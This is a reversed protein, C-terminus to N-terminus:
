TREAEHIVFDADTSLGDVEEPDFCENFDSCEECSSASCLLFGEAECLRRYFYKKWRMKRINGAALVPFYEIVLRRLEAQHLLGLDRWLHDERLGRRAIIKAFRVGELDGPRVHALLMDRLLEEEADPASATAEEEALAHILGAPLCRTRIDRLEALSLGTAETATTMGKEIEELARSFVCHLVYDGFSLKLDRQCPRGDPLAQYSNSDEGAISIQRASGAAPVAVTSVQIQLMNSMHQRGTGRHDFETSWMVKALRVNLLQALRARSLQLARNLRKIAQL